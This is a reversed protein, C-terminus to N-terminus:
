EDLKSVKFNSIEAVARAGIARFGVKGSTPVAGELTQPDDFESALKGDVYLGCYPGKKIIKVHYWKHIEECPDKGQGMLNLGPNRRWNSVGTHEANDDYRSISVHYSRTSADKGVYDGFVGTRPPVGTIGDQGDLGELAVFTILLGNKEEVFLDYEISINDPFNLKCFSMCGAGGQKSGNCDLRMIGPKPNTVGETLGEFHWNELGCFDDEFLIQDSCVNKGQMSCGFILAVFCVAAFIMSGNFLRM